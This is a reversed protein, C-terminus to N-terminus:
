FWKEYIRVTDGPQIMDSQGARGTMMKGNLNRRIEVTQQNARFTYGGAVSVAAMVSMGPQYAYEGPNKVEGLVYFPRLKVPQVSVVPSRLINKQTLSDALSRQLAPITEGAAPIDGLVPLALNGRDNVVYTAQSMDATTLNPIMVRLEDGPGLHYEAAAVPPMQALNSPGDACGALALTIGLIISNQIRKGM